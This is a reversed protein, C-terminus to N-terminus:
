DPSKLIAFQKACITGFACMTAYAVDGRLCCRKGFAYMAATLCCPAWAFFHMEFM